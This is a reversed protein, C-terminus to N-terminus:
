ALLATAIFAATGSLAALWSAPRVWSPRYTHMGAVLLAALSLLCLWLVLGVGWGWRWICTQLATALWVTAAIRM